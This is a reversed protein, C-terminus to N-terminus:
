CVRLDHISKTPSINTIFRTRFQEALDDFSSVFNKPLQHLWDQAIDTLTSPFVLCLIVDNANQLIMKNRYSAIHIMPNGTGDFVPLPPLKFKTSIKTELIESVFPLSAEMIREEEKRPRIKAKQIAEEIKRTLQTDQLTPINTSSSEGENDKRPDRLDELAPDARHPQPRKIESTKM